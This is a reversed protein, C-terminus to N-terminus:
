ALELDFTFTAGEGVASEITLEGGALSVIRRCLALGLGVGPINRDVRGFMDFVREHNVPDVGIGNDVVRIVARSDAVSSSISLQLARDPSRYRVANSVMNAMLSLLHTRDGLVRPLSDVSVQAEAARLPVAYDQLVLEVVEALDVPRQDIRDDALRALALLGDVQASMREFGDKIERLSERVMGADIEARPGTLQRNLLEAFMSVSRLPAKLEHATYDAFQGLQQNQGVLDKVDADLRREAEKLALGVEHLHHHEEKLDLVREVQAALTTLRDLDTHECSATGLAILAGIPDGTADRVLAGCLHDVEHGTHQDALVDRLGGFGIGELHVTDDGRDLLTDLAECCFGNPADIGIGAVVDFRDQGRSVLAVVPNQGSRAVGVVGDFVTDAAIAASMAYGCLVDVDHTEM